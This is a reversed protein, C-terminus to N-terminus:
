QCKRPRTTGQRATDEASHASHLPKPSPEPMFDARPAPLQSSPALGDEEAEGVEGSESMQRRQLLAALAVGVCSDRDGMRIGMRIGMKMKMRMWKMGGDRAWLKGDASYAM